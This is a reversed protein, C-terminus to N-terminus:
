WADNLKQMIEKQKQNTLDPNKMAFFQLNLKMRKNKNM